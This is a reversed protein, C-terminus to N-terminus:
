ELTREPGLGVISWTGLRCGRGLIGADDPWHGQQCRFAAQWQKSQRHLRHRVALDTMLVYPCYFGKTLIATPPWGYPTVPLPKCRVPTSLRWPKAPLTSSRSPSGLFWVRSFKTPLLTRSLGLPKTMATGDVTTTTTLLRTGGLGFPLTYSLQSSRGWTFAVGCAIDVQGTIVANLGDKVSKAVKYHIESRSAQTRIQELIEVGLGEYGSDTKQYLPKVDEFVM